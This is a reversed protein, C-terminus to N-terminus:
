PGWLLYRRACRCQPIAAQNVLAALNSELGGCEVGEVDNHRAYCAAAGGCGIHLVRPQRSGFDPYIEDRM